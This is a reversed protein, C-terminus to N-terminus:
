IKSSIEDDRLLEVQVRLELHRLLPVQRVEPGTQQAPCVRTGKYETTTPLLLLNGRRAGGASSGVVGGWWRSPTPAIGGGGGPSM